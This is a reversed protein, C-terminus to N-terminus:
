IALGGLEFYGSFKVPKFNNSIYMAVKQKVVDMDDGMSINNENAFKALTKIGEKEAIHINEKTCGLLLATESLSLFGRNTLGLRHHLVQEQRLPLIRIIERILEEPFQLLEAGDTEDEIESIEDFVCASKDATKLVDRLAPTTQIEEFHHKLNILMRSEFASLTMVTEEAALVILTEYAVLLAETELDEFSYVSFPLHKAIYSAIKRKNAKNAVTLEFAKNWVSEPNNFDVGDITINESAATDKTIIKKNKKGGGNGPCYRCKDTAGTKMIKPACMGKCKEWCEAAQQILMEESQKKESVSKWDCSDCYEFFNKLRLRKVVCYGASRCDSIIQEISKEQKPEKLRAVYAKCYRCYRFPSVGDKLVACDSHKESCEQAKEFVSFGETDYKGAIVASSNKLLWSLKPFGSKFSLLFDSRKVASFLKDVFGQGHLKLGEKIYTEFIVNFRSVADQNILEKYQDFADNYHGRISIPPQEAHCEKERDEIHRTESSYDIYHSLALNDQRLTDNQACLTGDQGSQIDSQGITTDNHGTSTDNQGNAIEKINLVTTGFQGTTTGNQGSSMGSQGYAIESIREYVITIWRTKNMRSENFRDTCIIINDSSLRSIVRQLTKKNWFSFQTMWRSYSNAVWYASDRENSSYSLWYHLQQLFIAENLGLKVALTPQFILPYEDIVCESYLDTGTVERLKSYNIRYWKTKNFYKNFEVSSILIESDELSKVIRKLTRLSWFPFQELWNEYTNYVWSVGDNQHKSKGLWYHLQQTFIAENLGLLKALSPLVLLPPENILYKTMPM